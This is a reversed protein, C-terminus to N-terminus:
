GALAAVSDAAEQPTINGRIVDIVAHNMATYLDIFHPWIFRVDTERGTNLGFAENAWPNELTIPFNSLSFFGTPLFRAATEQGDQSALWELFARAEAPHESNANMAIGADVHFCIRTEAATPGPIAFSGWNFPVDEHVSLNWSGDFHMAAQGSSFLIQSDNYTVAEFGVPLFPTIQSIATYAAVFNEDNLALEGAEYRARQDPGGVWSPLMGLFFTELIDWEDAVGNALPTVGNDLLAQCVAIFEDWTTPVALGHEEFIDKNYFAIQSVAIFPVAYIEGAPSTWAARNSELFNEQLGPLDTIDAFFGAEFLDLGTAFSRAYMLDPGIDSELQMRLTANYDPPNTPQFVITVNPAIRETYEALFANMEAVDDARWSGMTLVVQEGDAAAPPDETAQQADDAAPADPAPADPTAPTEAPTCASLMLAMSLSLVLVILVIKKM